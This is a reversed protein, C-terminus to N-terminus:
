PNEANDQQEEELSQNEEGQGEEEECNEMTM